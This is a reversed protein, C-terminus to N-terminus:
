TSSPATGRHNRFLLNNGFPFEVSMEDRQTVFIDTWGDEDYDLPALWFNRRVVTL